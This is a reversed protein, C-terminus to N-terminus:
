ESEKRETGLMQGLAKKLALGEEALASREFQVHIYPNADPVLSALARARAYQDLAPTAPVAAGEPLIQVPEVPAGEKPDNSRWSPHGTQALTMGVIRRGEKRLEVRGQRAWASVAVNVRNDGAELGIASAIDGPTVATIGSPNPPQEVLWSWAREPVSQERAPAGLRELNLAGKRIRIGRIATIAGQRHVDLDILQEKQLEFLRKATDHVDLGILTAVRTSALDVRGRRDAHQQLLSLLRDRISVPPGTM